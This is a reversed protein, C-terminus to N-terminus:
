TNAQSATGCESLPVKISIGPRCSNTSSAHLPMLETNNM